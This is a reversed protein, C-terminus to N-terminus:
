LGTLHEVEAIASTAEDDVHIGHIGVRRAGEVNVELDDLFAIREVSVDVLDAAHRYIRAEPKRMGIESSDIVHEVLNYADIMATWGTRFEAVNNSLIATRVGASRLRTVLDVMSERVGAGSLGKGLNQAFNPIGAEDFYPQIMVQYEDMTVEGRELQHWPHRDLEHDGTGYDGMLLQRLAGSKQGMSESLEALRGMVPNTLVGAFDFLVADIKRAM